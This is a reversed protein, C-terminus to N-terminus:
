RQWCRMSASWDGTGRNEYIWTAMAENDKEKTLDLGLETAKKNWVSNIQYKGIDVTGNTNVNFIVQGDKYHTNNSECHAIRELVPSKRPVEVFKEQVAYTTEGPLSTGIKFAGWVAGVVMSAIMAKRFFRYMKWKLVQFWTAHPYIDRLRKGHWFVKIIKM